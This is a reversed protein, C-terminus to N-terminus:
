GMAISGTPKEGTPRLGRFFFNRQAREGFPCVIDVFLKPPQTSIPVASSPTCCYRHHTLASIFALQMFWIVYFQDFYTIAIFNVIHGVLMAGLGWLLYESESPRLSTTRLEALEKGLSRFAAVLLWILLVIAVLGASLGFGIFVNTIDATGNIPLTYPFWDSTKSVPMGWLWWEHLHKITVDILYSRHWADGGFSFHTPLYWIPAKMVLALVVTAVLIARRVHRMRDRWPWVLWSLVGFIAFNLPGGSNSVWVIGLCLVIGSIAFTRNSKSFCLGIYLPLFSAGLSGLLSPHRFSGFCRFRDGRVWGVRSTLNMIEFPSHGTAYEIILLALYPVLLVIFACLFWRFDEIGEILGRFTFYCLFADVAIGITYAQGENSRLLFVVTTFLYLTIFLRDIENMNSLSFERRAMVRAFGAIELFRVAFMNFGLMDVAQAETLYLVGLAMAVLAWRRSALLVVAVLVILISAGLANM